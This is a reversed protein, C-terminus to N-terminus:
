KDSYNSHGRNGPPRFKWSNVTTVWWKEPPFRQKIEDLVPKYCRDRETQGEASWDRVFQKITTKLKDM